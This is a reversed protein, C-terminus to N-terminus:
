QWNIRGENNISITFAQNGYSMIIDGADSVRGTLQDFIVETTTPTHNVAGSANFTTQKTSSAFTQGQFLVYQNAELRVGHPSQNINNMAKNRAQQLISIVLERENRVLNARYFDMSMVLGLSALIVMIGLVILVEILTFGEKPTSTKPSAM